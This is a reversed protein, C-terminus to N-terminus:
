SLGPTAAGILSSALGHTHRTSAHPGGTLQPLPPGPALGTPLGAARSPVPLRVMKWRMQRTHSGSEQVDWSRLTNGLVQLNAESRRNPSLPRWPCCTRVGVGHEGHRTRRLVKEPAFQTKPYETGRQCLQDPTRVVKQIKSSIKTKSVQHIEKHLGHAKM